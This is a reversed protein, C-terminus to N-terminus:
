VEECHGYCCSRRADIEVECESLSLGVDHYKYDRGEALIRGLGALFVSVVELEVFEAERDELKGARDRVPQNNEERAVSVQGSRYLEPLLLM